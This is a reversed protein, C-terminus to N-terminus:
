KGSKGKHDSNDSNVNHEGLKALESDKNLETFTQSIESDGEGTLHNIFKNQDHTSLSNWDKLQGNEDLLYDMSAPLTSPNERVSVGEETWAPSNYVANGLAKMLLQQVNSQGENFDETGISSADINWYADLGASIGAQLGSNIVGGVVPVKNTALPIANQAVFDFVSRVQKRAEVETMGFAIKRDVDADFVGAMFRAWHHSAQQAKTWDSQQLSRRVENIYGEQVGEQLAVLAPTRNKAEASTTANEYKIKKELDGIEAQDFSLDEFLGGPASLKNALNPNLVLPIRGTKTQGGTEVSSDAAVGSLGTAIDEAWPKLITGMWSRLNPNFRGFVDEGKVKDATGGVVSNDRELGEEYGQIVNGVINARNEADAKWANYASLDAQYAPSNTGGEYASPEPKFNPTPPKTADNLMDGLAEGGDVTGMFAGPGGQMRNGTLYRAISIQSAKDAGPLNVDFPTDTSLFKRLEVLRNQEAAQLASPVNEGNLSDPTDSLLYLGQLPDKAYVDAPKDNEDYAILSYRSADSGGFLANKGSDHSHDFMLIDTALSTDGEAAQYVKAGYTLDPNKAAAYGTTQCFIDFGRLQPGSMGTGPFRDYSDEGTRRFEAINADEIQSLTTVGDRGRLADKVNAFSASTALGADSADVGGAALVMATGLSAMFPNRQTGTKVHDLESGAANTALKYLLDTAANEQDPHTSRYYDMFAQVYFPNKLKDGWKDQLAQVEEETLPKDSNAAKELDYALLGVAAQAEAWQAAGNAIPMEDAPFIMAAVANRDKKIAEDPVIKQRETNIQDAATQADGDLVELCNKYDKRIAAQADEAATKAIGFQIQRNPDGVPYQNKANAIATNYTSITADWQTQYSTITRRTDAVREAWTTLAPSSLTFAQSLDFTKQGLIKIETSAADAAAGTWEEPFSDKNTAVQTHEIATGLRLIESAAANAAETVDPAQPLAEEGKTLDLM